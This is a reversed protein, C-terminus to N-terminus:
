AIIILKFFVDNLLSWKYNFSFSFYCFLTFFSTLLLEARQNAGERVGGDREWFTNSCVIATLTKYSRDM